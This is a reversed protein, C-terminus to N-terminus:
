RALQKILIAGAARGAPRRGRGIGDGVVGDKAHMCATISAAMHTAAPAPDAPTCADMKDENQSGDSRKYIALYSGGIGKKKMLEETNITITHICMMEEEKPDSSSAFQNKKVGSEL